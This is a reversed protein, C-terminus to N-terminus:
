SLCMLEDAEVGAENRVGHIQIRWEVSRTPEANTDSPRVPTQASTNYIKVEAGRQIQSVMADRMNDLWRDLERINTITKM